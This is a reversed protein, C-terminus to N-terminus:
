KTIKEKEIAIDILRYIDKLQITLVMHNFFILERNTQTYIVGVVIGILEGFKNIAPGGSNGPAAPASIMMLETNMGLYAKQTYTSVIGENVSYYVGMPHGITYVQSGVMPRQRSINICQFLRKNKMTKPKQVKILALDVIEDMIVNKRPINRIIVGKGEEPTVKMDVQGSDIVVHKATLVYLYEKDERIIVGSGGATGVKIEVTALKLAKMDPRTLERQVIRNFRDQLYSLDTLATIIKIMEKNKLDQEQVAQRILTHTNEKISNTKIVIKYNVLLVATTTLISIIICIGIIVLGNVVARKSMCLGRVRLGM